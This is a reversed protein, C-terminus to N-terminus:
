KVLAKMTKEFLSSIKIDKGNGVGISQLFEYIESIELIEITSRSHIVKEVNLYCEIESEFDKMYDHPNRIQASWFGAYAMKLKFQAIYMKLIDCFRFSVGAPIYLYEFNCRKLWLTSQTNGPSVVQKNLLVIKNDCPFELPHDGVTMRYIADVDPEHNVLTQLIDFDSLPTKSINIEDGLAIRDEAVHRLPYGRPWLLSGKAFFAYPNFLGSGSLAYCTCFDFSRFFDRAESRLYTDDDTEFITEAGHLAAYLFGLNKRAYTKPGILQSLEPFLSEQESYSLYHLHESEERKWLADPTNTDGVVVVKWNEDFTSILDKRPPNITTIVVWSHQNNM